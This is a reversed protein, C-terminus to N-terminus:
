DPMNMKNVLNQFRADDRLVDYIWYKKLWVMSLNREEYAIELLRLVEEYDGLGLHVSALADVPVFESEMREKLSALFESAIDKRGVQGYQLGLLGYTIPAQTEISERQKELYPLAKDFQRVKIYLDALAWNTQVFAPDLQLAHQYQELAADDQDDFM